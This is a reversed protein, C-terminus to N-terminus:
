DESSAPMDVGRPNRVFSFSGNREVRAQRVGGIDEIGDLRLHEAVDNPGLQARRLAPEIIRGDEIVLIARGKIPATFTERHRALATLAIYLACIFGIGWLTMFLPANGTLARSLSSGVIIMLAIDIAASGAFARRPMLRCLILAYLLIVSARVCMQWWEITPADRGVVVKIFEM